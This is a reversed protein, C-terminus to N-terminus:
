KYISKQWNCIYSEVIDGNITNRIFEDLKFSKIDFASIIDDIDVYSLTIKNIKHKKPIIDLIKVARQPRWRYYISIL